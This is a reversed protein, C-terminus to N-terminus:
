SGTQNSDIEKPPALAPDLLLKFQIGSARISMLLNEPHSPADLLDKM